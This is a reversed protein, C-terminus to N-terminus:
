TLYVSWDSERQIMNGYNKPPEVEKRGMKFIKGKKDNDLFSPFTPFFLRILITLITFTPVILIIVWGTVFMGKHALFTHFSYYSNCQSVFVNM